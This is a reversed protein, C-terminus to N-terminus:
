GAQEQAVRALVPLLSPLLLAVPNNPRQKQYRRYVKEGARLVQDVSAGAPLGLLRSVAALHGPPLAALDEADYKSFPLGEARARELIAPIMRGVLSRRDIAEPVLIDLDVAADVLDQELLNALPAWESDTLTVSM